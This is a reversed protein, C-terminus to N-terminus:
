ALKKLHNVSTKLHNLSTKELLNLTKLHNLSTKLHNLRIKELSKPTKLHKFSTKELSKLTKVLSKLSHLKDCRCWPLQTGMKCSPLSFCYPIFQRAWPRVLTVWGPISGAVRQNSTRCRVLQAVKDGSCIYPLHVLLNLCTFAEGAEWSHTLIHSIGRLMVCKSCCDPMCSLHREGCLLHTRYSM